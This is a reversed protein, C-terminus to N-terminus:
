CYRRYWSNHCLCRKRLYKM